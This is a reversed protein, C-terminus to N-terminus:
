GGTSSPGRSHGGVVIKRDHLADLSTRHGVSLVITSPLARTIAGYLELEAAGDLASTAEDLVLLEPSALLVRAFAVRQQEGLSLTHSWEGVEDLSAAFAGLGVRSLVERLRADPVDSRAQPYCLADRLSGLPLYPRQSLFLAGLEPREIRGDGHPWIGAVARLLTTKGSGSPGTLLVREGRAVDFSTRGGLSRGVPTRTAVDVVRLADGSRVVEIAARPAPAPAPVDQEGEGSLMTLDLQLTSTPALDLDTVERVASAFGAIRAVTARWTAIAAYNTIVVSVHRQVSNFATMAKMMDGLKMTGALVQPGAIVFPALMGAYTYVNSTATLAVRRRILRRTNAVLSAFRGDFIGREVLEGGYLAISEANERARLLSFRFNAENREQSVELDSIPRGVGHVVLTGFVAYALAGWVLSGPLRVLGLVPLTVDITSSLRWLVTVFTALGLTASLLSTALSVSRDVFTAVDESIRQDPNDASAGTWRLRYYAQGRLWVDMCQATLWERWRLRLTQSAMSEVAITAILGSVVFPALVVEHTYLAKDGSQIANFFQKNWEALLLDFTIRLVNLAVIAGVLAWTGGRGRAFFYPRTLAWATRLASRRPAPPTTVAAEREQPPAKV